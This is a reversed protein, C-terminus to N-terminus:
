RGIWDEFLRNLVDGELRPSDFAGAKLRQRLAEYLSVAAAVSVNLSQIMGMMPIQFIADASGATEDSVGRHENGFVIAVKKTMDLDYLSVAEADLHTAFVAFGEARLTAFCEGASRHTRRDLWKNASSSSKKGISPFDEQTYLLEVRMVGVADCSRFIASVNHPDHINELVVTLDPQRRHLVSM